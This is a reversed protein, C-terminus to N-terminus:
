GLSLRGKQLANFIDVGALGGAYKFDEISRSVFAKGPAVLTSVDIALDLDKKVLNLWLKVEDKTSSASIKSPTTDSFSSM